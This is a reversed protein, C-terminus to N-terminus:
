LSDMMLLMNKILSFEVESIDKWTKIPLEIMNDSIKEDDKSYILKILYRDHKPANMLKELVIFAHAGISIVKEILLPGETTLEYIAEDEGSLVWIKLDIVKM